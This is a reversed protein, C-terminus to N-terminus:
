KIVVSSDTQYVVQYRDMLDSIFTNVMNAPLQVTINHTVVTQSDEYTFADHPCDDIPDKMSFEEPMPKEIAEQAEPEPELKEQQQQQELERQKQVEKKREEELRLEEQQKEYDNIRSKVVAILDSNEKEVLSQKDNFLFEHDKGLEAITELNARYKDATANAEIKASAVVDNIASQMSKFTKKGKIAAAALTSMVSTHIRVTKLSENLQAVHSNFETDAAMVLERKIDEKRKKVQKEQALRAVRINERIEDIDKAFENIDTVEGYVREILNSLNEEAKKFVKNRVEADAFDQDNKLEEKSKEVLFLAAEKYASLDSSVVLTNKDINYNISPLDRIVQGVSEKKVALPKYNALDTEFQKWGDIVMKRREPISVYVFEFRKENTGDSVTFICKEAGSVYLQQEVQPWHTDPLDEIDKIKAVLKESWLKHEWIVDLVLTAGDLSAAIKEWEKSFGTVPYLDEGLESEILPRAAAESEHGRNFLRQKDPTVEETIGTAKEQLLEDRTKYPSFGLMAAADSATFKEARFQHWEESGQVLNVIQM